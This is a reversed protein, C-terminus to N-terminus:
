PRVAALAASSSHTGQIGLNAPENFSGTSLGLHAFVLTLAEHALALLQDRSTGMPRQLKQESLHRAATGAETLPRWKEENTKLAQNMAGSDPKDQKTAGFQFGVDELVRFAYFASYPGLERRAVHFDAVALQLPVSNILSRTLAAADRLVISEPHEPPLPATALTPHMYGSVTERADCSRIELWTVPEVELVGGRNFSYYAHSHVLMRALQHASSRAEENRQPEGAWFIALHDRTCVAGFGPALEVQHFNLNLCSEWPGLRFNFAFLSTTMEM